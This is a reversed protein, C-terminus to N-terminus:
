KKIFRETTLVNGDKVFKMLYVGSELNSVQITSTSYSGILKGGISYMFLEDYKLNTEINLIEKVPNPFLKIEEVVTEDKDVITGSASKTNCNIAYIDYRRTEAWPTCADWVGRKVYYYKAPSLIYNFSFPGQQYQYNNANNQQWYGITEISQAPNNTGPFYEYLTFMHHPNKGQQNAGTVSLIPQLLSNCSVNIDFNSDFQDPQMEVNYKRLEKWSMCSGWIGRKIYYNNGSELTFPITHWGLNYPTFWASAVQIDGIGNLNNPDNPNNEMVIFLESLNSNMASTRMVQIQGTLCDIQYDYALDYPESTNTMVVDDIEIVGDFDISSNNQEPSFELFNLENNLSPPVCFTVSYSGFSNGVPIAITETLEQIVQPAFGNYNKLKVNLSLAPAWPNAQTNKAQFTVTYEGSPIPGVDQAASEFNIEPQSPIPHYIGLLELVNNNGDLIIEPNNVFNSQFTNYPTGKLWPSAVGVSELSGTSGTFGGNAVTQANLTGAALFSAIMFLVKKKM